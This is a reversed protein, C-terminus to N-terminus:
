AEQKEHETEVWGNIAVRKGERELWGDMTRHGENMWGGIDWGNGEDLWQYSTLLLRLSCIQVVM